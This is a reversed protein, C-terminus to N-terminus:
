ISLLRADVGLDDDDVFVAGRKLVDTNRERVLDITAELLPHGPAILEALVQGPITSFVKDFCVREYRSLVPEGFGIQRDRNRVAFPVSTIEYRGNERARIKGGVSQFAELFFSEIFHPQLKHAEMREMNERIAVVRHVDMTEEALANDNILRKLEDHNLSHDVVQNLRERVAPDNGYRIAEILLDRLPKNDFTVKGLVDFVKGKLTEREQEM